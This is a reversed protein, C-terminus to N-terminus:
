AIRDSPVNTGMVDKLAAKTGAGLLVTKPNIKSTGPLVCINILYVKWPRYPNSATLTAQKSEM